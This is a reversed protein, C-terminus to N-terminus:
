PWSPLRSVPGALDAGDSRGTLWALVTGGRGRVAPARTGGTSCLRVVGGPLEAEVHLEPAGTVNARWLVYKFLLDAQGGALEVVDDFSVGVDLDALHVVLETLRGLPLVAAQVQGLPSAISTGWTSGPLADAAALLRREADGMGERLVGLSRRAGAEIDADRKARSAYMPRQEGAPAGALLNLMGDAVLALHSLVHARTWGPLLTMGRVSTDDLAATVETLREAVRRVASWGSQAEAPTFKGAAQSPGAQRSHEVMKEKPMIM